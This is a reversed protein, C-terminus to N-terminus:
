GTTIKVNGGLYISYALRSWVLSDAYRNARMAEITRARIDSLILERADADTLPGPTIGAQPPAPRNCTVCDLSLLNGHRCIVPATLRGESVARM